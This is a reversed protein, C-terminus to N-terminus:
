GSIILFDFLGVEDGESSLVLPEEKIFIGEGIFPSKEAFLFPLTDLQSIVVLTLFVVRALLM